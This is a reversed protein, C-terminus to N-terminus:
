KKLVFERVEYTFAVGEWKPQILRLSPEQLSAGASNKAVPVILRITGADVQEIQVDDCDCRFVVTEHRGSASFARVAIHAPSAVIGMCNEEAIEISVGAAVAGHLRHYSCASSHVFNITLYVLVGIWIALVAASGFFFATAIPHQQFFVRTPSM